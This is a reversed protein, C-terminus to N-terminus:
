ELEVMAELSRKKGTLNSRVRVVSFRSGNPEVIWFEGGTEAGVLLDGAFPALSAASAYYVDPAGDDTLYLGPKPSGARDSQARIAVIPNPGDPLTAIVRSRGSPAVAVVTGRRRGADVPVIAEGGASGFGAPAVLVQDAGGPGPYGGVRRVRGASDITFVTGGAPKVNGSRGTAAVLRFGFRGVMDFTLAGDSPPTAPGALTAFVRAKGASDIEWIRHDPAHCFLDGQPFGHTGPSLVCRTEEVLRPMSAFQTIPAGAAPATWVTNATNEVYFFHSGNWSISNMHRGVQAFPMFSLRPVTAGGASPALVITAAIVFLALRSV